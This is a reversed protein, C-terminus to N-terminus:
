ITTWELENIDINLTALLQETTFYAFPTRQGSNTLKQWGNPINIKSYCIFELGKRDSDIAKAVIGNLKFVLVATGKDVDHTAWEQTLCRTIVAYELNKAREMNIYWWGICGEELIDKLSKGSFFVISEKM